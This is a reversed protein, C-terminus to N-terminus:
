ESFVGIGPGSPSETLPMFIHNTKPDAIVAKCNPAAPVSEIFKMSVADVIGLVPTKKTNKTGDETMDRAGLYFLKNGPNYAVYNSGGVESITSLITGKVADMVITKAKHGADIADGSCGVLLHESPGLALGAPFCEPTPFRAVITHKVPDIADVEGDPNETTKGVSIM